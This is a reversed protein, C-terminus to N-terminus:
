RKRGPFTLWAVKKANWALNFHEILFARKEIFGPEWQLPDLDTGNDIVIQAAPAGQPVL